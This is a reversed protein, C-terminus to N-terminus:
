KKIKDIVNYKRELDTPSKGRGVRKFEDGVLEYLYYFDRIPKSTVIFMLEHNINYYGTWVIEGKPYKM